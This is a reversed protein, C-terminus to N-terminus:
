RFGAKRLQVAEELELLALGEAEKLAAAARLLGHGYANAKVVALVQSRPAHRRVVGLNHRMAAADITAFIPRSVNVSPHPILSSPHPLHRSILCSLHPIVFSCFCM